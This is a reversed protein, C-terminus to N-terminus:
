GVDGTFYQGPEQDQDLQPQIVGWTTLLDDGQRTLTLLEDGVAYPQWLNDGTYGTFVLTISNADGNVSALLNAMTQFGNMSITAVYSDDITIHYDISSQDPEDESSGLLEEYDYDGVWGSLSGSASPTLTPEVVSACGVLCMAGLAALTVGAGIQRRDAM